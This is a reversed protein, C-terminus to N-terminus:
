SCGVLLVPVAADLQPVAEVPAAVDADDGGQEAEGDEVEELLAAEHGEGARVDLGEGPLQQAADGEQVVEVEDMGVELRLVD